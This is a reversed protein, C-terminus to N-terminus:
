GVLYAITCGKRLALEYLELWFSAESVAWTCLRSPEWHPTVCLQVRGGHSNSLTHWSHTAGLSNLSCSHGPVWLTEPTMIFIRPRSYPYSPPLDMRLKYSNRRNTRVWGEIYTDGFRDYMGLNPMYKRFNADEVAIRRSQSLTWSM